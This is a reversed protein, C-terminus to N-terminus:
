VATPPQAERSITKRDLTLHLVQNTNNLFAVFSDWERLNRFTIPTIGAAHFTLNIEGTEPSHAISLNFQDSFTPTFHM